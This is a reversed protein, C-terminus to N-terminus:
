INNTSANVLLSLKGRYKNVHSDIHKYRDVNDITVKKKDKINSNTPKIGFTPVNTLSEEKM